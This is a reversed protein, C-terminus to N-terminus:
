DRERDLSARRRDERQSFDRRKESDLRNRQRPQVISPDLIVLVLKCHWRHVLDNTRSDTRVQRNPVFLTKRSQLSALEQQHFPSYLPLIFPRQVTQM